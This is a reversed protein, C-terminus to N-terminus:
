ETPRSSASPMVAVASRASTSSWSASVWVRTRPRGREATSGCRQPQVSGTRCSIHSAITSAFQQGAGALGGVRIVGDAHLRRYRRNITGETFGLAAATSSSSARPTVHLARIIRVDGPQIAHSESM